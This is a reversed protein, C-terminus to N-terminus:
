YPSSLCRDVSLVIFGFQGALDLSSAKMGTAKQLVHGILTLNGKQRRFRKFFGTLGFKKEQREHM